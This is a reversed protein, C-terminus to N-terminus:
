SRIKFIQGDGAYKQKSEDRLCVFLEITVVFIHSFIDMWFVTSPNSGVVKM